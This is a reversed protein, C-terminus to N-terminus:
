ASAKNVAFWRSVVNDVVGEASALAKSAVEDGMLTGEVSAYEIDTIGMHNLWFTFAHQITRRPNDEEYIGGSAFVVLAKYNKLAGSAKGQADYNFLKGAQLIADIYSKVVGPESWNHTPFAFVVNDVSSIEDILADFPEIASAQDGSLEQGMFGRMQYATMSDGNFVPPNNKVLDREVITTVGEAQALFHDLVKRTVSHTNPLYSVVLTKNMNSVEFCTNAITAYAILAHAVIYIVIVQM